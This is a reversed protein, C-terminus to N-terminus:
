RRVTQPRASKWGWILLAIFGAGMLILSSPEPVSTTGEATLSNQNWVYHITQNTPPGTLETHAFQIHYNMANLDSTTTFIVTYDGYTGPYALGLAFSAANAGNAGTGNAYDGIFGGGSALLTWGSPGTVSVPTVTPSAPQWEFGVIEYGNLASGALSNWTLSWVQTYTSAGPGGSTSVLTATAWTNADGIDFAVAHAKQVTGALILATFLFIAIPLHRRTKMSKVLRENIWRQFMSM